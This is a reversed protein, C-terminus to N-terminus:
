RAHTDEEPLTDAEAATSPIPSVPPTQEAVDAVARLATDAWALGARFDESVDQASLDRLQQRQEDVALRVEDPDAPARTTDGLHSSLWDRLSRALEPPLGGGHHRSHVQVKFLGFRGEVSPPAVVVGKASWIHRNVHIM